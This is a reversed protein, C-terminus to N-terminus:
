KGKRKAADIVYAHRPRPFYYKITSDSVGHKELWAEDLIAPIIFIGRRQVPPLDALFAALEDKAEFWEKRIRLREFHRHLGREMLRGAAIFGLLKLEHHNGIQFLQMKARIDEGFIEGIKVARTRGARIFYINM